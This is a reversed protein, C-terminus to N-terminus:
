SGLRRSKVLNTSIGSKEGGYGGQLASQGGKYVARTSALRKQARDFKRRRKVRPNRINGARNPALGRNKEITRDITRHEGPAITEDWVRHSDREQDHARKKAEKQSAKSTRVLDYYEADDESGDEDMVEDRDQWDEDGWEADNLAAGSELAEKQRRNANATSVAERSRKADRYPIDADGELKNARGGHAQHADRGLMQNAHFQVSRRQAMKEAREHDRLQSPEGYEDEEDEEAHRPRRPAEGLEDAEEEAVSALPGPAPQTPEKRAKKARKKREGEPAPPEAPKPEAPKSEAPKAEKPQQNEKEDELLDELENPELEGLEAEARLDEQTPPGIIGAMEKEPEQPAEEFLGLDRMEVLASKFRSLREMVPHALLKAPEQAYSSSSALQFFFALLMAYSSLTQEYLYYLDVRAKDESQAAEEVTKRMPELQALVDGYEQTLALVIPADRRLRAIAEEPLMGVPGSEGVDLERKRRERAAASTEDANAREEEADIDGLGFEDDAMGARSMRQLRIVENTELEHAKEEDIESDSELDEATNGSYYARKNAGWGLGEEESDEEPEDEEDSGHALDRPAVRSASKAPRGRPEEEQEDEEDEFDGEQEDGEEQEVDEDDSTDREFGLVERDGAGFDEEDADGADQEPDLLIEDRAANFREVDDM